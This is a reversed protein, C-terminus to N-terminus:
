SIVSLRRKATAQETEPEFLEDPEVRVRPPEPAVRLSLRERVSTRRPRSAKMDARGHAGKRVPVSSGDNYYSWRPGPDSIPTARELRDLTETKRTSYLELAKGIARMTLSPPELVEAAMAEIKRAREQVAPSPPRKGIARVLPLAGAALRASNEAQFRLYEDHSQRLTRAARLHAECFQLTPPGNVTRLKDHAIDFYKKMQGPGFNTLQFVDDKWIHFSTPGYTSHIRGANELDRYLKTGPCPTLPAIQYFCPKLSVFYDIDQEINQPTHFDFGLIMSAVIEIGHAQLDDFLEPPSKGERKAYGTKSREGESIGSEVGIWIGGVGNYRLEEATFQSLGKVSGFTIYRVGWTKKDSRLLRGLEHVYEANLFFDEDFLIVNMTEVGLKELHHKMFAYTEAPEAVYIKKHKYFASTNCFECANPCGLAVLISPINLDFSRMGPLHFRSYPLHYQTIPREIPLDGLLRRMFRVGEERCLHDAESKVYSGAGATDGPLPDALASVGYGGVVIESRPSYRRAAEIRKAVRELHLTKLEFAIVDYGKELEKTYDDWRPYELVTCPNKLNEAILYLGWTPLESRLSAIDHGRALRSGLLDLMDEGWALDYPACPTTLLVKKM